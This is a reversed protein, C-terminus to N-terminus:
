ALLLDALRRRHWSQQGFLIDSQKARRFLLHCDADWTFGVGGHVQIDEATVRNAAESVWGKCMAAAKEREPDDVDSTWAAYHTGVRSLEVDHLMDAAKHKIVQFTAIPRGFQVRQKAYDVALSYARECTGVLEAALAVSADDVIRRWQSSLDGEPGLRRARRGELDLRAVRRTVDLSPELEGAPRELLFAGLEGYEDRAAVIAWDATHGDLVTAKVGHLVWDGDNTPEARARARAVPDGSGQEELAITGRADGSALAPLLDDADFRRAALTALVASSLFPGPLPLKGMEELVVVADVMGLGLGGRAEPVLLGTWGLGALTSWLESSVGADDDLMRRVYAPPAERALTDRVADRLAEQDDSFTFDM